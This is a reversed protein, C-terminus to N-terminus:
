CFRRSLLIGFSNQIEAVLINLSLKKDLFKALAVQTDKINGIIPVEKLEMSYCSGSEWKLKFGFDNSVKIPIVNVFDGSYIIYNNLRYRRALLSIYFPDNKSMIMSFM